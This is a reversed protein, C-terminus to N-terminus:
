APKSPWSVADETTATNTAPLDRLAQRYTAWEAKKSDSLPSDNFQTWDSEALLGNRQIRVTPWFDVVQEVAEGDIIKYTGVIYIGEIISQGSELPIDTLLAGTAGGELIEGTATNYKTYEIM